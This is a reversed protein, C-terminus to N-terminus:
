YSYLSGDLPVEAVWNDSASPFIFDPYFQNLIYPIINHISWTKRCLHLHFYLVVEESFSKVHFLFCKCVIYMACGQFQEEDAIVNNPTTFLHGLLLPCVNPKSASCLESETKMLKKMLLFPTDYSHNNVWDCFSQLTWSGNWLFSPQMGMLNRHWWSHWWFNTPLPM